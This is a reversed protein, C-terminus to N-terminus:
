SGMALHWGEGCLWAGMNAICHLLLLGVKGENGELSQPSWTSKLCITRFPGLRDDCSADVFTPVTGPLRPM